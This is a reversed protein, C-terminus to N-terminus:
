TTHQPDRGSIFFIGAIVLFCVFFLQAIGSLAGVLGAFGLIATIVAILLFFSAWALM